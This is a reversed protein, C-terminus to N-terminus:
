LTVYFAIVVWQVTIFLWFSVRFKLRFLSYYTWYRWFLFFGSKCKKLTKVSPIVTLLRAVLVTFTCLSHVSKSLSCIASWWKDCFTLRHNVEKLWPVSTRSFPSCIDAAPTPPASNPRAFAQRRRRRRRRRRRNAEVLGLSFVLCRVVPSNCLLSGDATNSDKKPNRFGPFTLSINVYRLVVMKHLWTCHHWSLGKM